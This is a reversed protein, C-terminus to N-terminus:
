RTNLERWAICESQAAAAAAGSAGSFATSCQAKLSCINTNRSLKRLRSRGEAAAWMSNVEKRYRRIQELKRQNM